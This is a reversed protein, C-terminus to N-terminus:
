QYYTPGRLQDHQRPPDVPKNTDDGTDDGPLRTADLGHALISEVSRYSRTGIVLARRCAAEMRTPPYRRSLRM